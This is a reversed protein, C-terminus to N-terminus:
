PTKGLNKAKATCLAKRFMSATSIGFFKNM